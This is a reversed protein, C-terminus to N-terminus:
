VTSNTTSRSPTSIISPQNSSRGPAENEENVTMAAAAVAEDIDTVRAGHATHGGAVGVARVGDTRSDVSHLSIYDEDGETHVFHQPSTEFDRTRYGTAAGFGNAPPVAGDTTGNRPPIPPSEDANEPVLGRAPVPVAPPVAGDDPNRADATVCM